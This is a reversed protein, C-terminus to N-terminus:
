VTWMWGPNFEVDTTSDSHGVFRQLSDNELDWVCISNDVTRDTRNSEADNKNSGSASVLLQSDPSFSIENVRSTHGVLEVVDNPNNVDWIRITNDGTQNASFPNPGGASAVRKGDHSFTVSRVPSSKRQFVFECDLGNGDDTTWFLDCSHNDIGQVETSSQWFCVFLISPTNSPNMKWSVNCTM